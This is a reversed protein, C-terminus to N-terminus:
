CGYNYLYIRQYTNPNKLRSSSKPFKASFYESTNPNWIGYGMQCADGSIQDTPVDPVLLHIGNFATMFNMWWLFDKRIDQSLTIKQKQFKLKKIEGIIRMVFCRSYKIARSVWLLKGLISQLDTKTAVTKRIWRNLETRIEFCKTQEFSM